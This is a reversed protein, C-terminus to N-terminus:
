VFCCEHFFAALPCQVYSFLLQTIVLLAIYIKKIVLTTKNFCAKYNLNSCNSIFICEISVYERRAFAYIGAAMECIFLFILM